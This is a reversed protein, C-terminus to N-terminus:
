FQLDGQYMWLCFVLQLTFLQLYISFLSCKKKMIGSLSPILTMGMLEKYYKIIGTISFLNSILKGKVSRVIELTM